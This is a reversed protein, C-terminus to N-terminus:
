STVIDCHPSRVRVKRMCSNLVFRHFLIISAVNECAQPFFIYIEREKDWFSINHGTFYYPFTLLLQLPHITEGAKFFNNGKITQWSVCCALLGCLDVNSNPQCFKVSQLARCGKVGKTSLLTSITMLRQCSRNRRQRKSSPSARSPSFLSHTFSPLSYKKELAVSLTVSSERELPDKKVWTSWRNEDFLKLLCTMLGASKKVCVWYKLFM